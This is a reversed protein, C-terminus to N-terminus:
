DLWWDWTPTGGAYTLTITKGSPVRIPVSSSSAAVTQSTATGDVAIASVTVGAGAHVVVTADRWATNQQATGSAPVAPPSAWHGPGLMNNVVKLNACNVIVPRRNTRGNNDGVWISGHINSGQDKVDYSPDVGGPTETTMRADLTVYGGNALFGGNYAEASWNGIYVLNSSGSLGQGSDYLACVDAYLTVLNLCSFHDQISVPAEYGQAAFRVGAVDDNNGNFPFTCGVGKSSQFGVQSPLDNLVPHTGQVAPAFINAAFSGWTAGALFGFNWAKLNTYVPCFIEIGDVHIHTDAFGATFSGGGSPGGVVSQVGFTPDPTSPATQTSVLCTGALNPITSQFFQNTGQHGVGLFDIMVKRSAGTLDSFPIKVQTNYTPGTSQTPAAALMYIRDQCIVQARYGNATAYALAAAFASNFAATDDTGWVAACGSTSIGAAAALTVQTASQVSAITTILPAAATGNAGNIMITKGTDAATWGATASTIVTTSNTVVDGVVKGNGLAGYTEPAFQWPFTSM